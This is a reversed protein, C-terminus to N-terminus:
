PYRRVRWAEHVEGAIGVPLFRVNDIFMQGSEIGAYDAGEDFFCSAQLNLAFPETGGLEWDANGDTGGTGAIGFSDIPIWEDADAPNVDYFASIVKTQAAYDIRLRIADAAVHIGSGAVNAWDKRLYTGLYTDGTSGDAFQVALQNGSNNAAAIEVMFYGTRHEVAPSFNALDVIFSFDRNAQGVSSSDLYAECSYNDPPASTTTFELRGNTEAFAGGNWCWYDPWKAEDREGDNFDDVLQDTPAPVALLNTVTDCYVSQGVDTWTDRELIGRQLVYDRTPVGSFVVETGSAGTRIDLIEPRAIALSGNVDTRATAAALVVDEAFFARRYDDGDNPDDAFEVRYTGAVLGAFLFEGDGDTWCEDIQEWEAGNWRHLLVHATIPTTGDPGTVTGSIRSAQTLSADINSVTAGVALVLDAGSNLNPVNDYTEFLYDYTGDIFQVRYTGAGLGGILYSGDARTVASGAGQWDSGTWYYAGVNIGELPTIGDPGTVTGAIKSALDLSVDVNSVLASLPVDIDTGSHVDFARWYTQQAYEGAEDSFSVRYTGPYLGEGLYQGNEDTYAEDQIYWDLWDDEWIAIWVHIGPLPTDGDPGTVTGSIKSAKALSANVNAISEGNTVVVDTASQEGLSDDYYETLYEIASNRHPWDHFVVHYTDNTLGRIAYNGAADTFAWATKEGWSGDWRDAQVLIDPLPTVGDSTTVTGSVSASADNTVNLVIQGEDYYDNQLGFVAIRYTTGSVANLYRSQQSGGCPVEVLTELTNGLWVSPNPHFLPFDPDWYESDQHSGFTDIQVLGSTPATWSFWVSKTADYEYGAPLAEGSEVTAEINSGTATLPFGAIIAPSDFNDNAPVAHSSAASLLGALVLGLRVFVTRLTSKM